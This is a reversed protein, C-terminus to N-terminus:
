FIAYEFTLWVIERFEPWFPEAPRYFDPLIQGTYPPPKKMPKQSVLNDVWADIV